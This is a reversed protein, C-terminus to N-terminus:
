TASALAIFFYFLEILINEILLAAEEYGNRRAVGVATETAEASRDSGDENELATPPAM